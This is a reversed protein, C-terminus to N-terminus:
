PRPAAFSSGATATSCALECRCDSFMPADGVDVEGSTNGHARKRHVTTTANHRTQAAYLRSGSADPSGHLIMKDSGFWRRASFRDPLASPSLPTLSRRSAILTPRHLM